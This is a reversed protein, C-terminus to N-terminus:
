APRPREHARRATRPSAATLRAWPRPGASVHGARRPPAARWGHVGRSTPRRWCASRPCLGLSRGGQRGEAALQTRATRSAPARRKASSRARHPRTAGMTSTRNPMVDEMRGERPVARSISSDRAAAPQATPAERHGRVRTCGPPAASQGRLAPGRMARRSMGTTWSAPRVPESVRDRRHSGGQGRRPRGLARGAPRTLVGRSMPGLRAPEPGGVSNASRRSHAPDAYRPGTSIPQPEWDHQVRAPYSM